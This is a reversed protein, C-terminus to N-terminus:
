KRKAWFLGINEGTPQTTLSFGPLLAALRNAGDEGHWEGCLQEVQDLRASELIEWEAGECDLKVIRPHAAALLDDFSVTMVSATHGADGYLSWGGTNPHNLPLMLRAISAGSRCVAAHHCVVREGYPALNGLLLRYNSPEAEVAIVRAGRALCAFSFSGIHAGVDLVVDDIKEPLRYENDRVVSDWIDRDWTGDRLSWWAPPRWKPPPHLEVPGREHYEWPGRWIGNQLTLFMMGVESGKHAEGVIVLTPKGDLVRYTWRKECAAYGIGISGDLRLEMPRQGFGIRDYTFGDGALADGAQREEPTETARDWIRNPWKARLVRAADVCQNAHTLAGIIEGAALKEKGQCAHEFLRRGQLDHQLIAPKTWGAAKRPMAYDRGLKRWALHYTSKDGYVFKYFYDSRGNMWVALNLEAWCIEKDILFQGSEFDPEDRYELGVNTWCVPPLWEKRKSPPLDPWFIAGQERYQPEDFLYSPDHVPVCDADLYLVERFPSHLVSFPKLEWGNLIAPREDAPLSDWLGRGDIVEIGVSEAATQMAPDMEGRGLHWFQVPLRCGLWRLMSFCVWGNRFFKEGGAGIVIGRGEYGGPYQSNRCRDAAANIQDLMANGKAQSAPLQDCERCIRLGEAITADRIKGQCKGLGTVCEGFVSCQYVGLSSGCGCNRPSFTRTPEGRHPCAISDTPAAAIRIPAASTLAVRGRGDSIAVRITTTPAGEEAGGFHFHYRRDNKELWCVRCQGADYAGVSAGRCKQKDHAM